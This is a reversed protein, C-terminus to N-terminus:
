LQCHWDSTGFRVVVAFCLMADVSHGQVIECGPWSQQCRILKIELGFGFLTIKLRPGVPGFSLRVSGSILSQSNVVIRVRLGSKLPCLGFAFPPFALGSLWTGPLERVADASMRWPSRCSAAMRPAEILLRVRSDSATTIDSRFCCHDNENEDGYDTTTTTTIAETGAAAAARRTTAAARPELFLFLFRVLPLLPLLM